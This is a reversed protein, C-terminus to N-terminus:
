PRLDWNAERFVARCPPGDTYRFTPPSAADAPVTVLGSWRTGYGDAHVCAASLAAREGGSAARHDAVVAELRAVLAGAPLAEVGALLRRVHAVKATETGPPRNEVVHLGPPLPTVTPAGTATMDVAFLAQRDGVLIWAPNYDEPRFGRAFAEVADAASPHAALALPLEGRSRKAAGDWPPPRNTLGAFVGHENLAFWTGGAQEDRGGLARPGAERLVTMATAPRELREDRNAAVVVPLDRRARSLVILLCM